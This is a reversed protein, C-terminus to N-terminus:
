KIKKLQQKIVLLNDLIVVLLSLVMSKFTIDNENTITYLMIFLAVLVIYLIISRM